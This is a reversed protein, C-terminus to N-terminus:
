LVYKWKLTYLSSPFQSWWLKLNLTVTEAVNPVAVALTTWAWCAWGWFNMQDVVCEVIIKEQAIVM